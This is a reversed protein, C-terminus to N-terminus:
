KEKEIFKKIDKVQYWTEENPKDPEPLIRIKPKSAGTKILSITPVGNFNLQREIAPYDEVNFAFFHLDSYETTGAIDEFYEKLNHCLIQCYM